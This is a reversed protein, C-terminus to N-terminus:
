KPTPSDTRSTSSLFNKKVKDAIDKQALNREVLANCYPCGDQHFFVVIRKGDAKAENIDDQFNLFSEKFWNPYETIKAGYFKGEKKEAALNIAPFVLSALAVPFIFSLLPPLKLM